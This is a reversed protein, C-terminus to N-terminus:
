QLPDPTKNDEKELESGTKAKKMEKGLKKVDDFDQTMSGNKNGEVKLKTKLKNMEDM